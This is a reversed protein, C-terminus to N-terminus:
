ENRYENNINYKSALFLSFLSICFSHLVKTMLSLSYVIHNTVLDFNPMRFLLMCFHTVLFPFYQDYFINPRSLPCYKTKVITVTISFDYLQSVILVKYILILHKNINPYKCIILLNLSQWNKYTKKTKFVKAAMIASSKPNLVYM